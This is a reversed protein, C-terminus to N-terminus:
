RQVFFNAIWVRYFPIIEDSNLERDSCLLIEHTRILKCDNAGSFIACNLYFDFLISKYKQLCKLQTCFVYSYSDFTNM